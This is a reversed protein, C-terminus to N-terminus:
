TDAHTGEMRRNINTIAQENLYELNTKVKLCQCTRDLNNGLVVVGGM